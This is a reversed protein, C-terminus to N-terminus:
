KAPLVGVVGAAARVIAETNSGTWIRRLWSRGYRGLLLLDDARLHSPLEGPRGRHSECLAAVGVRTVSDRAHRLRRGGDEETDVAVAVVLPAGLAV